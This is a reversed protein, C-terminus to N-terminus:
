ELGKVDIVSSYRQYNDRGQKKVSYMAIDANKILTDADEGDDPYIAIGLSTTIHLKRNDVVLPERIVDLIKQAIKTFDEVHTVEPLLLLFEDGGIRAITDGKRLLGALRKGVAQLLRDGFSHGFTDNVEKFQDLDLLMVALWKQNRHAHVLGLALRDNFLVRNSLGTLQDHTAMHVLEEEAQKRDTIDKSVVTVATIKGDEGKVPSMTRLHYRGDVTSKIENQISKGTEFVKAIGAPFDKGQDEPHLDGYIKKGVENPALGHRKRYAENMFLYRCDEDILYMFDETSVLSHYKEESERLAEEIIKRETIDMSNGLVARKGKYNIPTTTEIIWRIGGDKTIVRFEYPSIRKRKLMEIANKAATERDEPHIINISTKGILEEPTYGIYAACRSNLLQFVGDQVVYVGAWSKEALTQYLEETEKHETIDRGIVVIHQPNGNSDNILSASFDIPIKKGDKCLLLLEVKGSGEKLVHEITILAKNIDEGEFFDYPVKLSPIEEDTYGTLKACYKNWRVPRETAIEFVFFIDDQANLATEIFEQEKRLSDEIQRCDTETAELEVIRQRLKALEAVLQGKTKNEM